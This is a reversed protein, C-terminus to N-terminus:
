RLVFDDLNRLYMESKGQLFKHQIQRLDREMSPSVSFNYPSLPPSKKPKPLHPVFKYLYGIVDDPLIAEIEPPLQPKM